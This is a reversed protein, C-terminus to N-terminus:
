VSAFLRSASNYSFTFAMFLALVLEGRIPIELKLVTDCLFLGLIHQTEKCDCFYELLAIVISFGNFRSIVREILASSVHDSPSKEDEEGDKKHAVEAAHYFAKRAEEEGDTGEKEVMQNYLEIQLSLQISPGYILPM